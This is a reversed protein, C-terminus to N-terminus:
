NGTQYWQLISFREPELPFYRHNIVLIRFCLKIATSKVPLAFNGDIDTVVGTVTRKDNDQEIVTAGILSEKTKSDILKGKVITKTTATQAKLTYSFLCISVAIICCIYTLIKRM